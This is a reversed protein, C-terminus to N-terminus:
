VILALFILSSPFPSVDSLFTAALPKAISIPTIPTIIVVSESLIPAITVISDKEKEIEEVVVEEEVKEVEKEVVVVPAEVKEEVVVPEVASVGASVVAAAVMRSKWSCKIRGGGDRPVRIKLMEHGVVHM